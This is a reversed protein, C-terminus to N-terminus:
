LWLVSQLGEAILAAYADVGTPVTLHGGSYHYATNLDDKFGTSGRVQGMADWCHVLTAGNNACWTAYNANFTRIAAAVTDSGIAYPPIESIFLMTGAPMAAKFADMDPQVVAWPIGQAADNMGAAVFVARPAVAAIAPAKALTDAWTTGGECFNQYELGAILRRVANFPEADINGVPGGEYITEWYPAAGNHGANISEGATVILPPVGTGLICIGANEARTYTETGTAAESTTYYCGDAAYSGVMVGSAHGNIWIGLKDGPQSVM